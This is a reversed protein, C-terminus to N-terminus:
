AAPLHRPASGPPVPVLKVQTLSPQPLGARQWTLRFRRMVSALASAVRLRRRQSVKASIAVTSASTMEAALKQSECWSRSSARAAALAFGALTAGSTSVALTSSSPLARGGGAVVPDDLGLRDDERCREVDAADVRDAVRMDLGSPKGGAEALRDAVRALGAPQRDADDGMVGVIADVPQIHRNVVDAM